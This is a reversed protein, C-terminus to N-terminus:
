FKFLIQKSFRLNGIEKILVFCANGDSFVTSTCLMLCMEICFSFDVTINQRQIFISNDGAIRVM